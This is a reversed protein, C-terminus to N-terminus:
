PTAALLEIIQSNQLAIAQLALLQHEAALLQQESIRDVDPNDYASAEYESVLDSITARQRDILDRAQRVREQYTEARRRAIRDQQYTNYVSFLETVLILLLLAAIVWLQSDNNKVNLESNM